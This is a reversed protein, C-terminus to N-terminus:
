RDCFDIRKLKELLTDINVLVDTPITKLPETASPASNSLTSTLSKLREKMEEIEFDIKRIGTCGGM